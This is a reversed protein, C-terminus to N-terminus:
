RGGAPSWSALVQKARDILFRISLGLLGARVEIVIGETWGMFPIQPLAVATLAAAVGLAFIGFALKLAGKPRHEPEFHYSAVAGILAAAVAWWTLGFVAIAAGATAIAKALLAAAEQKM